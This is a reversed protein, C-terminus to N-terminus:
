ACPTARAPDNRPLGASRAIRKTSRGNGTPHERGVRRWTYLTTRSMGLALGVERLSHGEAAAASCLLVIRRAIQELHDTGDPARLLGRIEGAREALSTRGHARPM